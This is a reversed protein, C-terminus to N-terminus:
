KAAEPSDAQKQASLSLHYQEAAEVFKGPIFSIAILRLMLLLPLNVIRYSIIVAFTLILIRVASKTAQDIIIQKMEPVYLCYIMYGFFLIGILVGAFVRCTLLMKPEKQRSYIQAHKAMTRLAFADQVPDNTKKKPVPHYFLFIALAIPLIVAFPLLYLLGACALLRQAETEAGVFLIAAFKDWLAPIGSEASLYATVTPHVMTYAAGYVLIMFGWFFLFQALPATARRVLASKKAWYHKRAAYRWANAFNEASVEPPSFLM